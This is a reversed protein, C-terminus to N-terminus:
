TSSSRFVSTTDWPSSAPGFKRDRFGNGRSIGNHGTQRASFWDLCVPPGARELPGSSRGHSPFASKIPHDAGDPNSRPLTGTPAPTRTSFARFGTGVQTNGNCGGEGGHRKSQIMACWEPELTRWLPCIPNAIIAGFPHFGHLFVSTQIRNCTDPRM